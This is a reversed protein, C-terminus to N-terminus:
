HQHGGEGHVHGHSLEEETAERVTVIEVEFHLTQDALPHNLDLTVVGDEITTVTAILVHEGARVQFQAGINVDAKNEFQELAVDQILDQQYVGYGEAPPISASFKDGAAHGEMAKELGPIISGLGQIYALPGANESSDIVTNDDGTLTYNFTVAKNMEIKMNM